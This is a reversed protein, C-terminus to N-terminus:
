KNNLFKKLGFNGWISQIRKLSCIALAVSVFVDSRLELFKLIIYYYFYLKIM